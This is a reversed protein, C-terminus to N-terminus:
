QLEMMSLDVDGGSPDNDVSRAPMMLLFGLITFISSLNTDLNCNGSLDDMLLDLAVFDDASVFLLELM